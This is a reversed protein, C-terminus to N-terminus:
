NSKVEVTEILVFNLLVLEMWVGKDMIYAFPIMLDRAFGGM